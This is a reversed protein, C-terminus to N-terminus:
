LQNFKILNIKITTFQLQLNNKLVDYESKLLQNKVTSFVVADIKGAEFKSQSTQFTKETLTKIELLKADLFEIQKIKEEEIEVQQKLKLDEQSLAVKEKENELELAKVSKTNRFGNFIPVNLQFGVQQNKNDSFQNSFSDEVTGPQNLSRYYFTSYNYFAYLSPLNTGKAQKIRKKGLEYTLSALKIKPNDFELSSEKSNSNMFPMLVCNEIDIYDANLLQFLQKTQIQVAQKTEIISKEELALSLQMEYLDSKPKKGITEEKLIRDLNSKANILQNEQIKVLEQTYLATFYSEAIQLKYENELVEKEVKAREIDLKTFQTTAISNFDLLNMRAGLFFNDNQINSSVRGNTSPDITSGFNYTQNADFGVSPLVNNAFSNHRKQTRKIEIQRIKIELSNELGMSICQELTWRNEQATSSVFCFFLLIFIIAKNM